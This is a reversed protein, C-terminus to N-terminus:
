QDCLEGAAKGDVTLPVCGNAALDFDAELVDAGRLALAGSPADMSWSGEIRARGLGTLEITSSADATQQEGAGPRWTAATAVELGSLTATLASTQSGDPRFILTGNLAIGEEASATELRYAEFTLEIPLTPDSAGDVLSPLNKAIIRGSLQNGSDDTCDTTATLTDGARIVLPCTSEPPTLELFGAVLMGMAADAGAAAALARQKQELSAGAFRAGEPPPEEVPPPRSAPDDACAALLLLTTTTLSYAIRSIRRIM